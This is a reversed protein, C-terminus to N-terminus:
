IFGLRSSEAEIASLIREVESGLYGLVQLVPEGDLIAIEQFAIFFEFQVEYEFKTDLGVTLFIVEQKTRDWVSHEPVTMEWYGTAKIKTHPRVFATGIATLIAHNDHNRMANLACLFDNGGNYPKFSRLLPWVEQPVDKCWGSLANELGTETGAFPFYANKINSRGSALAVGYVAHDLAARLNTVIDGVIEPVATDELHRTLRIKHILQESCAPNPEVIREYPQEDAFSKLELQLDELHQGARAIKRHASDFPGPMM